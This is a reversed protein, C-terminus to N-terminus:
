TKPIHKVAVTGGPWRTGYRGEYCVHPRAAVLGGFNVGDSLFRGPAGCRGAVLLARQRPAGRRGAALLERGFNTTNISTIYVIYQITYM